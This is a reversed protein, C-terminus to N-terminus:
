LKARPGVQVDSVMQLVLFFLHLPEVKGKSMTLFKYSEQGNRSGKYQQRVYPQVDRM